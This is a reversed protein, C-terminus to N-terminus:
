EKHSQEQAALLTIELGSFSLSSKSKENIFGSAVSPLKFFSFLYCEVQENADAASEADGLM